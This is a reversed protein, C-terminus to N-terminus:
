NSDDCMKMHRIGSTLYWVSLLHCRRLHHQHHLPPLCPTKRRKRQSRICLGGLLNSPLSTALRLDTRDELPHAVLAVLAVLVVWAKPHLHVLLGGTLNMNVEPVM